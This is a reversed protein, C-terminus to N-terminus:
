CTRSTKGERKEVLFSLLLYNARRLFADKHTAYNWLRKDKLVEDILDAFRSLEDTPLKAICIDTSSFDEFDYLTSLIGHILYIGTGVVRAYKAEADEASVYKEDSM